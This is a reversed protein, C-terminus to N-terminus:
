VQRRCFGPLLYTRLPSLGPVSATRLDPALATDVPFQPLPLPSNCLDPSSSHNPRPGLYHKPRHNSYPQPRPLPLASVLSHPVQPLASDLSQFALPWYQPLASASLWRLQRGFM